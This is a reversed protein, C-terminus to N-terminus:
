LIRTFFIKKLDIAGEPCIEMCCYCRICKNYNYLPIKRNISTNIADAPCISRCHYCLTCRRKEPVPKEVLLNKLFSGAPLKRFLSGGGPPLFSNRFDNFSDGKIIIKDPSSEGLGRQKGEKCILSKNIDLGAIKIAATDVAIADLGSIMAQANVPKGSKGPGEGELGIIGDMINIIQNKKTYMFADYLDLLFSVFKEANDAKIHWRSKELGHITGFLNKVAGTFYTLGHTKLKPLNFIFDSNVIDKAIYFSKYRTGNVNKIVATKRTDAVPIKENSVIEDYGTKKMVRSLSLFAPSEVLIPNGGNNKIFLIVARFFEPHTIIGSEPAASTLLNPKVAIKAGKFNSPNLGIENISHSIKELLDDKKYSTVKQLSVISM